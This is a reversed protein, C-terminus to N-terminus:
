PLHQNHKGYMSCMPLFAFVSSLTSRWTLSATSFLSCNQLFHFSCSPAHIYSSTKYKEVVPHNINFNVMHNSSLKMNQGMSLYQLSKVSIGKFALSSFGTLDLAIGTFQTLCNSTACLPYPEFNPVGITPHNINLCSFQTQLEWPRSNQRDVMTVLFCQHVKVDVMSHIAGHNWIRGKGGRNQCEFQMTKLMNTIISVHQFVFFLLLLLILTFM